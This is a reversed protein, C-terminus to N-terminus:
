ENGSGSMRVIDAGIARLKGVIDEYGREIHVIEEVTTMGKAALGAIIM